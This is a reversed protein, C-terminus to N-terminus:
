HYASAGGFGNVVRSWSVICITGVPRTRTGGFLKLGAGVASLTFGLAPLPPPMVEAMAGSSDNM